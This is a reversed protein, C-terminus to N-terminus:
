ESIPYCMPILDETVDEVFSAFTIAAYYAGQRYEFVQLTYYPVDSIAAVTKLGMRQEGLFTVPVKEMSSVIIGAQAYAEIMADKQELTLDLIGEEDMVAFAVRNQMDLKQYLVNITTMQTVNEAMMDTFQTLPDITDGMETGEFIEAVNGPIEQLEEASYYTWDSDLDIAFGIYNNIYTGGEIRGISMAPAEESDEPPLIQGTPEAAQETAAPAVIGSLAERSDGGCATLVCIMSLLLIIGIFKKM